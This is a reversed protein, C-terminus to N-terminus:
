PLTVNDRDLANPDDSTLYTHASGSEPANALTVQFTLGDNTRTIVVQSADGYITGSPDSVTELYGEGVLSDESAHENVRITVPNALAPNESTVYLRAANAVQQANAIHADRKSNEMINGIAVIAIGAIIGIIVIVVLLEILTLGRQDKLAKM